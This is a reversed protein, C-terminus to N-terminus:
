KLQKKLFNSNKLAGQHKSDFQLTKLYGALAKEKQGIMYYINARNFIAEVFNPKIALAKDYYDIAKQHQKQMFAINALNNYSAFHQPDIKTVHLYYKQAGNYDKKAYNLNGLSLLADLYNPKIELAKLYYMEARQSNHKKEMVKGMNYHSLHNTPVLELAETYYREAKEYEGKYFWITGLNYLTNENDKKLNNAISFYKLAGDWQKANMYITALNHYPNVYHSNLAIAELYYEAAEVSNGAEYYSHGLNYAVREKNPSKSYIDEWLSVPTQWVQNRLFCSTGYAFTILALLVPIAQRFKLNMKFRLQLSVISVTLLLAFGYLPTYLRHEYILDRIPLISSRLILTTYFWFIAFSLLRERKFLKIAGIVTTLIIAFGGLVKFNWLSNALKYNYDLNQNIPFFLLQIYKPIIWFQSFLYNIRSLGEREKPLLGTSLLIIFAAIIISSFGFIIKKNPLKDKERIIFIELLLLVLPLAAFAQKTLIGAVVVMLFIIIPYVTKKLSGTSIFNMRAKLYSYSSIMFFMGSMAEMRQIIYTVSQTQLPHSVFILATFLAITQKHKLLKSKEFESSNFLLLTFLYTFIAAVLHFFLNVAHYSFPNLESFYYNLALSFRPLPRNYIATWYSIDTFATLSKIQDNNVINPIDDFQFAANFSNSYFLIGALIIILFALPKNIKTEVFLKDM